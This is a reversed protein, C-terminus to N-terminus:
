GPSPGADDRKASTPVPEAYPDEHHVGDQNPAPAEPPAKKGPQLRLLVAVGGNQGGAYSLTRAEVGWRELKGSTPFSLQAYLGGGGGSFGASLYVGASFTRGGLGAGVEAQVPAALYSRTGDSAILLSASGGLWSELIWTHWGYNGAIFPAISTYNGQATTGGAVAPGGSITWQGAAAAAVLPLWLMFLRYRLIPVM